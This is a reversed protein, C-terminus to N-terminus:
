ARKEGAPYIVFVKNNRREWFEQMGYWIEWKGKEAEVAERMEAASFMKSYIWAPASESLKAMSEDM